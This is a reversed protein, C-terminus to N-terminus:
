SRRGRELAVGCVTRCERAVLQAGYVIALGWVPAAVLGWYNNFPQGVFLFFVLYAASAARVHIPGRPNAIGAVILASIVALSATPLVFAWGAWGIPPM